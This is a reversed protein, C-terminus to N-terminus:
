ALNFADILKDTKSCLIEAFDLFLQLQRAFSHDRELFVFSTPVLMERVEKEFNMELLSLSSTFYASFMSM